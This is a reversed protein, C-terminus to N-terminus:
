NEYNIINNYNLALKPLLYKMLTKNKALLAKVFEGDEILYYHFGKIYEEPIKLEEIYYQDEFQGDLKVLLMEKKEVEVGKKLMTTRGSMWNILPDILGSRATYLKREAPTYKKQNKSVIGVSASTINAYENVKVEKLETNKPIMKIVILKSQLDEEEILKRKIELNVATILLVDDYKANIYFEGKQDSITFKENVLNTVSVGEVTAGEAIIKCHIFQESTIQASSFASLFLLYVTLIKIKM